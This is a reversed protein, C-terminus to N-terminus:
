LKFPTTVLPKALVPVAGDTPHVVVQVLGAAVDDFAFRGTDDAVATRSARATRLEVRLAGSPIIWGDIRHAGSACGSLTLMVSVADSGFTITRARDEGGAAARAGALELEGTFSLLGADLSALELGFLVRDALGAPPPDLTEWMALLRDALQDDDTV